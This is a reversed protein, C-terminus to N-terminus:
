NNFTCRAVCIVAETGFEQGNYLCSCHNVSPMSLMRTEIARHEVCRPLNDMWGDRKTVSTNDDHVEFHVDCFQTCCIVTVNTLLLL